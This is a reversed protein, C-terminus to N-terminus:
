WWRKSEDVVSVFVLLTDSLEEVVFTESIDFLLLIFSLNKIPYIIPLPNVKAAINISIEILETVISDFLFIVGSTCIVISSLFISV